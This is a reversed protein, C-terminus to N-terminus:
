SLIDGELLSLINLFLQSVCLDIYLVVMLSSTIHLLRPTLVNSQDVQRSRDQSGIYGFYTCNWQNEVNLRKRAVFMYRLRAQRRQRYSTEKKVTKQRYTFNTVEKRSADICQTPVTQRSYMIFDSETLQYIQKIYDCRSYMIYDSETLQDRQM